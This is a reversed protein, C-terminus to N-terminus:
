EKDLGRVADAFLYIVYSLGLTIVVLSLTIM